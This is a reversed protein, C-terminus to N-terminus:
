GKTPKVLDLLAEPPRGVAAKKRYIGIPRQLLTPHRAMHRILTRADEDGMLGLQKFAKDNRRLLDRPKAGLLGLV